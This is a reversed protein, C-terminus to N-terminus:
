AYQTTKHHDYITYKKCQMTLESWYTDMIRKYNITNSTQLYIYQFLVTFFQIPKKKQLKILPGHSKLLSSHIKSQFVRMTFDGQM